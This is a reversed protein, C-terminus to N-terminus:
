RHRTVTDVLAPRGSKVVEIAKRLADGVDGGNEIPGEAWWGMSRAIGAFDPEPGYLDMPKEMPNNYDLGRATAQFSEFAIRGRVQCDATGGFLCISVALSSLGVGVRAM